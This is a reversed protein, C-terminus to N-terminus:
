MWYLFSLTVPTSLPPIMINTLGCMMDVIRSIVTGFNSNAAVTIEGVVCSSSIM